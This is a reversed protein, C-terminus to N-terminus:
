PGQSFDANGCSGSSATSCCTRARRRLADLQLEGSIKEDLADIETNLATMGYSDRVAAFAAAIAARRREPRTVRHAGRLSPGGRNIMSNALQTAIIERRLRHSRSRMPFANSSRSRSTASSSARSIPITPCMRRRATRRVALTQRLRAARRAGAPDAGPRTPPARRDGHRRASIRGHPRARRAAELMQM